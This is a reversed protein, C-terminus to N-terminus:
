EFSYDLTYSAKSGLPAEFGGEGRIGALGGAGSGPLISWPGAAKAGDFNGLSEVVFSGSRGDITGEIRQLGVFRATGDPGYCMLWQVEGSGSLDGTFTQTVSARTLKAEGELERYTDEDWSAIEFEGSANM